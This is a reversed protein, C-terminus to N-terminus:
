RGSGPAEGAQASKPKPPTILLRIDLTGDTRRHVIYKQGCSAYFETLADSRRKELLAECQRRELPSVGFGQYNSLVSLFVNKQAEMSSSIRNQYATAAAEILKAENLNRQREQEIRNNAEVHSKSRQKEADGVKEFADTVAFPPTKKTMDVQTIRIGLGPKLDALMANLRREVAVVIPEAERATKKELTLDESPFIKDVSWQAVETMVAEELLAQLLPHFGNNDSSSFGRFVEHMKAQPNNFASPNAEYNNLYYCKPDSVQYEISWVMHVICQDGTILYGDRGVQIKKFDEKVIKKAEDQYPNTVGKGPWFQFTVININQGKPIRQVRDIPKPFAAYWTGAPLVDALQSTGKENIVNKQILKGFRFLMAQETSKSSFFGSFPLYIFVVIIAVRLVFFLVRLMNVLAEAGQGGTEESDLDPSPNNLDNM